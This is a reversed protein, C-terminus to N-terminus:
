GLVIPAPNLLSDTLFGDHIDLVFMGSYSGVPCSVETAAGHSGAQSNSIATLKVLLTQALFLGQQSWFAGPSILAEPLLLNSTSSGIFETHISLLEMRHAIWSWPVPCTQGSITEPIALPKKLFNLRGVYPGLCFLIHSQDSEPVLISM